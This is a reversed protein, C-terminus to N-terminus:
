VYTRHKKSVFKVRFTERSIPVQVHSTVICPDESGIIPKFLTRFPLRGGEQYGPSRILNIKMEMHVAITTQTLLQNVKRTAIQDFPRYM